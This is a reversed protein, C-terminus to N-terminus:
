DNSLSERVMNLLTWLNDTQRHDASPTWGGSGPPIQVCYWYWGHGTLNPAGHYAQGTFHGDAGGGKLQFHRNLYFGIPPTDPYASPFVILLKCWRQQWRAPLPYRPIILWDGHEEDYLIGGTQAFRPAIMVVENDIRAKRRDVHQSGFLNGLIQSM